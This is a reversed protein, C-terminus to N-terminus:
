ALLPDGALIQDRQTARPQLLPVAARDDKLDSNCRRQMQRRLRQDGLYESRDAIQPHLWARLLPPSM